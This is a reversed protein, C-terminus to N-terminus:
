MVQARQYVQHYAPPAQATLYSLGAEIRYVGTPAAAAGGAGGAGGARIEVLLRGGKRDAGHNAMVVTRWLRLLAHYRYPVVM